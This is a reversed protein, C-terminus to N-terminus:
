RALGVVRWLRGRRAWVPRLGRERLVALMTEPPHVYNRFSRGTLRYGANVVAVVARTVPNPPPFSFVLLRGARGAAAALLLEADPYCCVVRHLVVIDHTEVAEPAAAVDLRRRTTRAGVGAAAALEAAAAEYSDVLELNTTRGAGRRLLEVQLEGVGGGIELVSADALGRGALFGTIWRSTRDLGRRRYRAALVRALRPGFM